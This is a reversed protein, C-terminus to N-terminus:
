SIKSVNKMRAKYREEMELSAANTFTICLINDPNVGSDVLRCIRSILVHTKGAGACALCLIRPSDSNVALQQQENLKYM